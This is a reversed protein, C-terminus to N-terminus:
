ARRLRQVVSVLGYVVIGAVIGVAASILAPGLVSTVAEVVSLERNASFEFVRHVWGQLPAIGHVLLGGGVLFMAAAGAISLGRMLFPAFALIGRGSARAMRASLALGRKKLLHAGIDDLKVVTAVLGYVAVTLLLAVVSVVTARTVFPATAVTGLTIAVIEASLIFDTRIAGKIKAKEPATGSQSTAAPTYPTAAPLDQSNFTQSTRQLASHHAAVSLEASTGHENRHAAASSKRHTFSHIIKEAGEYCLYLGGIMLIPNIAAPIVASILLALPVIIIKNLVSGKAVAWVVPLERKAAVGNVQEANLAIDDGLVGATKKGALKTMTAVDDLISTIDDLLMLLGTGAM